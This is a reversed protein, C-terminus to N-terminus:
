LLIKHAGGRHCNGVEMAVLRLLQEPTKHRPAGKALQGEKSQGTRVVNPVAPRACNSQGSDPM